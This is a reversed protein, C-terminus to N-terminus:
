SMRAWERRRIINYFRMADLYDTFSKIHYRKGNETYEVIYKKM